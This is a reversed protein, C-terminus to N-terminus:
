TINNIIHYLIQRLLACFILKSSWKCGLGFIQCEYMTRRIEQCSKENECVVAEDKCRCWLVYYSTTKKFDNEDLPSIPNQHRKSEYVVNIRVVFNHNPSDRYVIGALM